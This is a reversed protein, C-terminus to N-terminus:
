KGSHTALVFVFRVWCSSGRTSSEGCESRHCPPFTDANNHLFFRSVGGRMEGNPDTSARFSHHKLKGLADPLEGGSKKGRFVASLCFWNRWLSLVVLPTGRGQRHLQGCAASCSFFGVLIMPAMVATPSSRIVLFCARGRSANVTASESVWHSRRSTAKSLIASARAEGSVM